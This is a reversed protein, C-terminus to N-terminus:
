SVPDEATQVVNCCVQLPRFQSFLPLPLLAQSGKPYGASSIPEALRVPPCDEKLDLLRTQLNQTIEAALGQSRSVDGPRARFRAFKYRM